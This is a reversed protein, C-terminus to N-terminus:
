HASPDPDFCKCLHLTLHAILHDPVRFCGHVLQVKSIAARFVNIGVADKV